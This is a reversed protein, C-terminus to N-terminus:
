EQLVSEALCGGADSVKYLPFIAFMVKYYVFM